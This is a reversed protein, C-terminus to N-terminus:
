ARASAALADSRRARRWSQLTLIAALGLVSVIVWVGGHAFIADHVVRLAFTLVLGAALAGFPLERWVVQQRGSIVAAFPVASTVTLYDAYPKGRRALLKADQHRAGVVALLALSGFFVTGILRTALLAHALAFLFVGVFFPHRTIREIGRPLRITQGFLDYPSEPYTVSGATILMIGAVIAAMLAWRLAPINALALGSAGELRHAAYYAVLVAFSVSAVLSFVATFGGEGLCAVLRSRIPGTALGVHTGGFLLWLGAVILAPEM